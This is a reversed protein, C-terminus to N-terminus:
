TFDHIHIIICVNITSYMYDKLNNIANTFLTM